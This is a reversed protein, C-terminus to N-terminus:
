KARLFCYVNESHVCAIATDELRRGETDGAKFIRDDMTIHSSICCGFILFLRSGSRCYLGRACM